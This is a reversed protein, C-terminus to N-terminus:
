RADEAAIRCVFEEFKGGPGAPLRGSFQVLDVKFPYGLAEQVIETLRMRAGAEIESDCVVRLEIRDLATQVVQYQRIAAVESFRQFGVLPWNRRGDPLRVLNRERGVIRQLTPLGRECGGPEGAVAYDGIDYRILPMAFNLLDTITVRGPEGVGAPAGDSGLVEVHLGEAM